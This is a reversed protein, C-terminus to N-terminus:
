NKQKTLNSKVKRWYADTLHKKSKWDPGSNHVRAMTEFDNSALAKPCYRSMYAEMVKVSYDLNTVMSYSGKVRSDLWYSKSIQLPGLSKGADGVIRGHRGSTETLHIARVFNTNIAGQLSFALFLIPLFKM